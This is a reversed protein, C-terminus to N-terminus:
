RLERSSEGERQTEGRWTEKWVLAGPGVGGVWVVLCRRTQRVGQQSVVMGRM